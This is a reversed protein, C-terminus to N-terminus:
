FGAVIEGPGSKIIRSIADSKKGFPKNYDIYYEKCKSEKSIFIHLIYITFAILLIIIFNNIKIM